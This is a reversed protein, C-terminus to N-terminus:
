GSFREIIKKVNYGQSYSPDIKMYLYLLGAFVITGLSGSIFFELYSLDVNEKGPIIWFLAIVIGMIVSIVAPAVAIHFLKNIFNPVIQRIIFFWYLLAVTEAIVVSYAVGKIGYPRTLIFVFIILSVVKVAQIFLYYKPKGKGRLFPAASRQVAHFLGAISLIQIIGIISHWKPDLFLITFAPALCIMGMTIYVMIIMSLKLLNLYSKEMEQRDDQIASFYPFYIQSLVNTLEGSGTRSFNYAAQYIGLAAVGILRGVMINDFYGSFVAIVSGALIWKGFRFLEKVKSLDLEFKPRYDFIIYSLICRFVLGGIMGIYLAWINKLIIVFVVSLIVELIEGSFLYFFNTRFDLNKKLYVDAINVFAGVIFIASVARIVPVSEASNFFKGALPALSFLLAATIVSRIIRFTWASNLFHSIDGKKQILAQNFGTQSLSSILNFTILAIGFIGFEAPSLYHTLITIKLFKFAIASIRQLTVWLGGKALKRKITSV